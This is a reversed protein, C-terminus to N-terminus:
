HLVDLMVAVYPMVPPEARPNEPSTFHLDLGIISSLHFSRSIRLEVGAHIPLNGVLLFAPPIGGLAQPEPHFDFALQGSTEVFFVAGQSSRISAVLGVSTSADRTGSIAVAVRQAQYFAYGGALRLALAFDERGGMLRVRGEVELRSMLGYLARVGVRLDTSESIGVGGDVVLFPFGLGAAIGMTGPRLTAAEYLFDPNREEAEARDLETWGVFLTPERRRQASAGAAPWLCALALLLPLFSRRM